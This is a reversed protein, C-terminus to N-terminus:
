HSFPHVPITITAQRLAYPSRRPDALYLSPPDSSQSSFDSPGAHDHHKPSQRPPQPAPRSPITSSHRVIPHSIPHLPMATTSPPACPPSHRPDYPTPRNPAFHRPSGHHHHKASHRAPQPAPRRPITISHRVTLHSIAHLPITTTSPPTCPLSHLPDHPTPRNPALGPHIPMTATSPPGQRPDHPAPRNTEFGPNVVMTITSLPTCAVPQRNRLRTAQCLPCPHM